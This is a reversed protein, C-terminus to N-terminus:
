APMKFEYVIGTEPLLKFDGDYIRETSTPLCLSTHRIFALYFSLCNKHINHHLVVMFAIIILDSGLADVLV